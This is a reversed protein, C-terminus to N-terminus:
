SLPEVRPRVNMRELMAYYDQETLDEPRRGALAILIAELVNAGFSRGQLEPSITVLMKVGRAKLMEVDQATVTNTLLTRGSMDLPMHQKIYLFDGCIYENAYLEPFKPKNETQKAGTPYLVSIPMRAAIPAIISAVANLTSLSHIYIPWGLTFALDGFTMKAGAEILGLTMGYRSVAQVVMATHGRFKLGYERELIGVVKYEWTDKIGGGDVMPTKKAANLLRLADKIVYKKHRGAHVYLDIGGMGFADVKGDLEGILAIARDFDGDTGRREVLIKEGLIETEAVHDRSSSGLSVSVVHKM